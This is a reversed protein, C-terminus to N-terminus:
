HGNRINLFILKKNIWVSVSNGFTFDLSKHLCEWFIQCTYTYQSSLNFRQVCCCHQFATHSILCIQQFILQTFSGGWLLFIVFFFILIAQAGLSSESWGPCGGASRLRRHACLWKTPKTMLRSLHDHNSDGQYGHGLVASDYPPNQWPQEQQWVSSDHSPNQCTQKKQNAALGSFVKIPELINTPNMHQQGM